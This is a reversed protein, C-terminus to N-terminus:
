EEAERAHGRDGRDSTTVENGTRVPHRDLSQERRRSVTGVELRPQHGDPEETIAALPAADLGPALPRQAESKVMAVALAIVVAELVQLNETRIAVTLGLVVGPSVPSRPQPPRDQASSGM